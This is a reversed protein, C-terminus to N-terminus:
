TNNRRMNPWSREIWSKRPRRPRKYIKWLRRWNGTPPRSPGLTTLGSCAAAMLTTSSTRRRSGGSEIHWGAAEEEGAELKRDIYRRLYTMALGVVGSGGVLAMAVAALVEEVSM